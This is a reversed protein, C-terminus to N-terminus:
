TKKYARGNRYFYLWISTNVRPVGTFYPTTYKILLKPDLKRLARTMPDKYLGNCDNFDLLLRYVYYQMM